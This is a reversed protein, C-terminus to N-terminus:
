NMRWMWDSEQVFANFFLSTEKANAKYILSKAVHFMINLLIFTSVPYPIPMVESWLKHDGVCSQSSHDSWARQDQGQSNCTWKSPFECWKVDIIKRTFRFIQLDSCVSINKGLPGYKQQWLTHWLTKSATVILAKHCYWFSQSVSQSM